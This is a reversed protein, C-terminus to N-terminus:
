SIPVKEYKRGDAKSIQISCCESCSEAPSSTKLVFAQVIECYRFENGYGWLVIKESEVFCVCDGCSIPKM